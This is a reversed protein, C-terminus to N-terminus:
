RHGVTEYSKLWDSIHIVKDDVLLDFHPKKNVILEHYKIGWNELQQTTLETYDVGSRAGRATFIKITHGMSHMYNVSDIAAQIPLAKSYDSEQTCLTGDVDFCIVM